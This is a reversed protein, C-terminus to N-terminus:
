RIFNTRQVEEKEPAQIGADKAAQQCKLLWAMNKALIQMIQMGEKDEKIEEPTNGHVMNWYRSSVVPMENIMFYKNLQDLTATTGARRASVIAAGPKHRFVGQKSGAYFARDLFLAAIGSASAYHVPSGLIIGDAEKAKEVFENVKDNIVCRGLKVCAGCAKCPVIPETGAYFIESEIGEQNLVKTIEELAANTCGKQRPSGNFLLVKM